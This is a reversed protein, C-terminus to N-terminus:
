IGFAVIQLMVICGLTVGEKVTSTIMMEKMVIM